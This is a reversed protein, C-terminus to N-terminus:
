SGDDRLHGPLLQLDTGWVYIAFLGVHVAEVETLLTFVIESGTSSHPRGLNGKSRREEPVPDAQTPLLVLPLSITVARDRDSPVLELGEEVVAQTIGLGEHIDVPPLDLPVRLVLWFFDEVPCGVQFVQLCDESLKIGGGSRVLLNHNLVELFAQPRRDPSLQIGLAPM